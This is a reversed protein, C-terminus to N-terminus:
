AGDFERNPNTLKAQYTTRPRTNLEGLVSFNRPESKRRSVASSPDLINGFVIANAPCVAQCATVIDGDRIDRDHEKAEIRARNIRQV